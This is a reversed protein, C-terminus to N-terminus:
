DLMTEDQPLAGRAYRVADVSQYATSADDSAHDRVFWVTTISEQGFWSLELITEPLEGGSATRRDVVQTRLPNEDDGPIFELRATPEGMREIAQAESIGILGDERVYASQAVPSSGPGYSRLLAAVIALTIFVIGIYLQRKSRRYPTAM